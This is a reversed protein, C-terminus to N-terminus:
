KKGAYIPYMIRLIFTFSPLIYDQLFNANHPRLKPKVFKLGLGVKCTPFFGLRKIIRTIQAGRGDGCTCNWFSKGKTEVILNVREGSQKQFFKEKIGCHRFDGFFKMFIKFHAKMM